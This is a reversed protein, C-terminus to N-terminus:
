KCKSVHRTRRLGSTAVTPLQLYRVGLLQYWPYPLQRPVVSNRFTTRLHHPKSCLTTARSTNDLVKAKNLCVINQHHGM